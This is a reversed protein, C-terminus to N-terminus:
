LSECTKYCNGLSRQNQGWWGSIIVGHHARSTTTPLARAAKARPNPNVTFCRRSDLLPAELNDLSNWHGGTNKGRPLPVCGLLRMQWELRITYSTMGIGPPSLCPSSHAHHSQRSPSMLAHVFLQNWHLPATPLTAMVTHRSYTNVLLTFLTDTEKCNM